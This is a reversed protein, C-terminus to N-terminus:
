GVRCRTLVTVNEGRFLDLKKITGSLNVTTGVELDLDNSSFWTAKDKGNVLFRYVLTIGYNGQFESVGVVQAGKLAVKDGQAGLYASKAQTRAERQEQQNRLYGAFASAALARVGEVVIGARFVATLNANYGSAEPDLSLAYEKVREVMARDADTPRPAAPNNIAEGYLIHATNVTTQQRKRGGAGYGGYSYRDDNTDNARDAADRSWYRGDERVAVAVWGLWEGLSEEYRDTQNALGTAQYWGALALAYAPDIGMYELLCDRGVQQFAGEREVVFTENRRRNTRCHNCHPGTRSYEPPCQGECGPFASIVTNDGGLHTLKAVIRWGDMGLTEPTSSIMLRYLVKLRRVVV